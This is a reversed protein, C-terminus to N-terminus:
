LDTEVRATEREAKLDEYFHARATNTYPQLWLCGIGLTLCALIAWGIFTLDLIFLDGKHGHMMYRSKKLAETGSLEPNDRLLYPVMAYAYLLIFTGIFLTVIGLGIVVLSELLLTPVSRSYDRKFYYLMEEAPTGGESRVISLFANSLGYQLPVLVLICVLVQILSLSNRIWVVEHLTSANGLGFLCGVLGVILTAIAAKNWQNQLSGRAMARYESSSKMIFTNIITKIGTNDGDTIRCIYHQIGLHYFMDKM